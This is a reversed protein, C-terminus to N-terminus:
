SPPPPRTTPPPPAPSAKREPHQAGVGGYANRCIGVVQQHTAQKARRRQAEVRDRPIEQPEDRPAQVPNRDAHDNGRERSKLIVVVFERSRVAFQDTVECPDHQRDDRTYRYGRGLDQCSQVSLLPSRSSHRHAQERSSKREAPQALSDTRDEVRLVM